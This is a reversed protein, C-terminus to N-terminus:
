SEYYGLIRSGEAVLTKIKDVHHAIYEDTLKASSANISIVAIIHHTYDYVPVSLCRTGLECEENDIAYGNIRSEEIIKKLHHLTTITHPTFPTFEMESAYENLKEDSFESLLLKGAGTCYLPAVKGIRQLPLMVQEPAPIVELYICSYNYRVILNTTCGFEKSINRLVPNLVHRIDLKSTLNYSIQCLKYTLSYRGTEPDQKVYNRNILTTLFRSLTSQNMDLKAALDYLRAPSEEESLLEILSLLKDSSQNALPPNKKPSPM